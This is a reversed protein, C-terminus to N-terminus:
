SSDIHVDRHLQGKLFNEVRRLIRERDQWIASFPARPVSHQELGRVETTVCQWWHTQAYFAFFDMRGFLVGESQHINLECFFCPDLGFKRPKRLGNM